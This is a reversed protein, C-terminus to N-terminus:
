SGRGEIARHTGAFEECLRRTPFARGTASSREFAGHTPLMPALLRQPGIPARKEQLRRVQDRGLCPEAAPVGLAGERETGPKTPRSGGRGSIADKSIPDGRRIGPLALCILWMSRKKACNGVPRRARPCVSQDAPTKLPATQRLPPPEREY